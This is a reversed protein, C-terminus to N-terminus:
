NYLRAISSLNGKVKEHLHVVVEAHLPLFLDVRSGFRVFGMDKGQIAQEGEKAYCVVRRAVIGAIQKVLVSHGAPTEIVTSYHENLESAQPYSAIFYSGPHYKTYKIKGSVPYRNVHVNLVSMFISIKICQRNLYEAEFAEELAVILGDAPAVAVMNDPIITREPNRFFFFLFCLLLAGSIGTTYEILGHCTPINAMSIFLALYVAAFLFIITYGARHIRMENKNHTLLTTEGMM